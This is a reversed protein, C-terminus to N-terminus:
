GAVYVEAHSAPVHPDTTALDVAVQGSGPRFSKSYSWPVVNEAITGGVGSDLNRSAIVVTAGCGGIGNFSTQLGVWVTDSQGVM